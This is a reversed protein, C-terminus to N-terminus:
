SPCALCPRWQHVTYRQAGGRPPGSSFHVRRPLCSKLPAGDVPHPLCLRAAPSVAPCLTTCPSPKQQRRHGRWPSLAPNPPSQNSPSPVPTRRPCPARDNQPGRRGKEGRRPPPPLFACLGVRCQRQRQGQRGLRGALAVALQELHDLAFAAHALLDLRAVPGVPAEALLLAHGDEGAPPPPGLGSLGAGRGAAPLVGDEPVSGDSSPPLGPCCSQPAPCPEGLSVQRSHPVRSPGPSLSGGRGKMRVGPPPSDALGVPSPASLLVWLCKPSSSPKSSTPLSARTARGVSLAFALGSTLM